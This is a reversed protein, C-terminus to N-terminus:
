KSHYLEFNSDKESIISIEIPLKIKFTPDNWRFGKSYDPMFEQSIQYFVETNDSLTLFGHAFGKPIYVMKHNEETLEFGEWQKYTSSLPRLDVIIDFIKGKTCRVLKNEEYPTDQFHMGRFTGIKKNFSVSCQVLESNLGLSTIKKKDWVRAFFGRSDEIKEPEIVIVGNLKTEIFKM